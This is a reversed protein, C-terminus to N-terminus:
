SARDPIPASSTVANGRWVPARKRWGALWLPLLMLDRLGWAALDGGGAPWGARRALLWEAGYWIVLFAPLWAPAAWLLALAPLLPGTLPELLYLAPFGDRRLHAWRAQRQWVPAAARRGLPQGFPRATVRVRLGAARVLRTSAVDEALEGALAALGGQADLWDRPFALTKGQAFGLGLSDAALQWRAQYGNLFGAEVRAWFGQADCGFAPSSIMGTGPRRLAMIQRLYDPPLLLNSDAMVVWDGQAARWGKVLNNLKPNGSISDRGTLLRAPVEPHREMLGQLVAIAPDTPDDVCHIVEYGPADQAFGSALTQELGYDLGCVPRLLSVRPMQQVTARPLPRSLRWIVLATTLLHLALLAAAFGILATTM